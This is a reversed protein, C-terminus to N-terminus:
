NAAQASKQRLMWDREAQGVDIGERALLTNIRGKYKKFVASKAPMSGCDMAEERAERLLALIRARDDTSLNPLFQVYAKYTVEVKGATMGDKVADVQAPTLIAGLRALFARHLARLSPATAANAREGHAAHWDNLARYQSAVIGRVQAVKAPDGLRLSAAIRDARAEIKDLYAANAATASNMADLAVDAAAAPPQPTAAAASPANAPHFDDETLTNRNSAPDSWDIKRTPDLGDLYKDMVTYGDGRLDRNALDSDNADLGYKAIWWAPIGDPGLDTEPRGTYVPFGGVQAINTIIGNGAEGVDNKPLGKVRQMPITRGEAWVRGTRVCAVIRADVPDRRPLTDGAGALVAVYAAQASEITMPPMPFPHDVRVSAIISRLRAPDEIMGKELGGAADPDPALMFQVGGDWNDATVAPDGVVYNGAVYAKGWRSVPDSRSWSQAPELIRHRVPTHMTAPGPKFYNNIINFRSKADGGDISRHRWNFLVNNAFNFDYSMAVSPNRATNCAFLNHHFGTNRGGWDGGFAHNWTNLGESVICWQITDNVTPLKLAPGGGPPEYMHRYTDMTQDNGWSASCHDIIVNGVPNGCLGSARDWLSTIGRRFRIYRIVVDHTDDWVSQDAVCIGDGPATQGAITIYPAEICIPLKLHIIGAVNFVVIRPGAAECAERLTGPGSDALSTVVYVKGGRGGFSYEGGGEAGPFAPVPSQPLDGPKSAWPIFPKGKAAWAKLEPAIRALVDQRHADAAELHAAVAPPKVPWKERAQASGSALLAGLIAAGLRSTSTPSKM